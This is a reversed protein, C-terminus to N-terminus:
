NCCCFFRFRGNKMFDNDIGRIEIEVWYFIGRYYDRRRGLGNKKRKRM